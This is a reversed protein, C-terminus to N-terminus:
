ATFDVTIGKNPEKLFVSSKEPKVTTQSAKLTEHLNEKSIQLTSRSLPNQNTLKSINM